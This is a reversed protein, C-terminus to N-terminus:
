IYIESYVKEIAISMGNPEFKKLQNSQIDLLKMRENVNFHAVLTMNKAFNSPNGPISLLPHKIGLVEPIASVDSAVIPIKASMAELLVLGFGEYRSALVFCDMLRLSEIIRETRGLWVVKTSIGLDMSLKYMDKKLNGEGIIVLKCNKIDHSVFSFARLLTSYDKQAVIRGITGFIFENKSAGIDSRSLKRNKNEPLSNNFGYRIISIKCNRSVENKSRIFDEVAQSIAIGSNARKTVFRSLISSFWKPAGPFFMEANHRSVIFSNKRATISTLLEARPLHAHIVGLRKKFYRKLWFVQGIASHKACDTVVEVGSDRFDNLLEPTDKLYVISVHWGNRVQERALILLQNEAGGRSITTIVHIVKKM